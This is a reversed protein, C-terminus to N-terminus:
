VYILVDLIHIMFHILPRVFNKIRLKIRLNIFWIREELAVNHNDILMAEIETIDLDCSYSSPMARTSKIHNIFVSDNLIQEWPYTRQIDLVPREYIVEIVTVERNIHLGLQLQM